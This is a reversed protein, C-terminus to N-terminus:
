GFFIDSASTIGNLGEFSIFQSRVSLGAGIFVILFLLSIQRTGPKSFIIYRRGNYIATEVISTSNSFAQLVPFAFFLFFATKALDLGFNPYFNPQWHASAHNSNRIPNSWIKQIFNPRNQILCRPTSEHTRM